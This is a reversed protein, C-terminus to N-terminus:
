LPVDKGLIHDLGPQLVLALFLDIGDPESGMGILESQVEIDLVFYPTPLGLVLVGSGRLFFPPWNPRRKKPPPKYYDEDIRHFAEIKVSAAPARIAIPM